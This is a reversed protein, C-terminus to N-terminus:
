LTRILNQNPPNGTTLTLEPEMGTVRSVFIFFSYISFHVALMKFCASLVPKFAELNSVSLCIQKRFVFRSQNQTLLFWLALLKLSERCSRASYFILLNWQLLFCISLFPLVYRSSTDPLGCKMVLLSELPLVM